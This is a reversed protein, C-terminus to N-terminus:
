RGIKSNLPHGRCLNSLPRSKIGSLRAIKALRDYVADSMRNVLVAKEDKEMTGVRRHWQGIKSVSKILEIVIVLAAWNANGMNGIYGTKGGPVALIHMPSDPVHFNALTGGHRCSTKPVRSPSTGPHGSVRDGPKSAPPCFLGQVGACQAILNSLNLAIARCNCFLFGTPNPFALTAARSPPGWCSPARRNVPTRLICFVLLKRRLSQM